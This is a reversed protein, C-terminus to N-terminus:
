ERVCFLERVYVCVSMCPCVSMCASVCVLVYM